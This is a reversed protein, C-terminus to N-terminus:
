RKTGEEIDRRRIYRDGPIVSFMAGIAIHGILLYSWSACTCTSVSHLARVPEFLYRYTGTLM